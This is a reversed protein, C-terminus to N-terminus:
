KPCDAGKKVFKHQFDTLKFSLGLGPESAVVGEEINLFFLVPIM